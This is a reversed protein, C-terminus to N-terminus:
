HQGTGRCARPSPAPQAALQMLPSRDPRRASPATVLAAPAERTARGHPGRDGSGAAERTHGRTLGTAYLDVGHGGPGECDGAGDEAQDDEDGQGSCRTRLGRPDRSPGCGERVSAYSLATSYAPPRAPALRAPTAQSRTVTRTVAHSETRDGRCPSVNVHSAAASRGHAEARGSGRGETAEAAGACGLPFGLSGAPRRSTPNLPGGPVPACSCAQPRPLSRALPGCRSTTPELGPSHRAHM